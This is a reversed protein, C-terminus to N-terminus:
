GTGVYVRDPNTPAARIAGISGTAFFGDSVNTWHQGYDTSKWVGGGSAGMYFTGPQQAVGAVATVRGGQTPGISRYRLAPFSAPSTQALLPTGTLAALALLTSCAGALSPTAPRTM